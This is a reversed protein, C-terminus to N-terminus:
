DERKSDADRCDASEDVECYRLRSPESGICMLHWVSLRQLYLWKKGKYKHVFLRGRNSSDENISLIQSFPQYTQGSRLRRELQWFTRNSNKKLCGDICTIQPVAGWVNDSMRPSSFCLCFWTSCVLLAKNETNHLEAIWSTLTRCFRHSLTKKLAWCCLQHEVSKKLWNAICTCYNETVCRTSKPGVALLRLHGDIRQWM